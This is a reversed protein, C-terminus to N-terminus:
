QAERADVVLDHEVQLVLGAAVATAATDAADGAREARVVQRHGAVVGDLHAIEELLDPQGPADRPAPAIVLTVQAVARLLPQEEVALPLFPQQRHLADPRGRDRLVLTERLEHLLRALLRREA